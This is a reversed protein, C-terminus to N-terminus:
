TMTEMDHVKNKGNKAARGNMRERVRDRFQRSKSHIVIRGYKINKDLIDPYNKISHRLKCSNSRVKRIINLEKGIVKNRKERVANLFAERRKQCAAYCVTKGMYFINHGDSGGTIAKNLNFGLVACQLNWKNLNESNIVEVGDVMTLLRELREGPFHLNNVGTYAASYPHPFVVVANFARAGTIIDEVCLSISSMIENGMFPAVHTEYFRRLDAIDYFYALIHTGEASTVEIGPITLLDDYQEIEVAGRIENHDTVAIGIGLSRACAAIEPVTNVGDSYHSHFHLDAVTYQKTLANLDPSEFLVRNINEM